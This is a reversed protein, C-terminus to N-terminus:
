AMSVDLFKFMLRTDSEFTKAYDEDHSQVEYNKSDNNSIEILGDSGNKQVKLTYGSKNHLSFLTVNDQNEKFSIGKM